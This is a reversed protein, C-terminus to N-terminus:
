LSDPTEDYALCYLMRVEPELQLMFSCVTDGAGDRMRGVLVRCDGERM